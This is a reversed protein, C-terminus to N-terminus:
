GFDREMDDSEAQRYLLEYFQAFAKCIWDQKIESFEENDIVYLLCLLLTEDKFMKKYTDISKKITNESFFSVITSDVTAMSVVPLKNPKAAESLLSYIISAGLDYSESIEEQEYKYSILILKYLNPNDDKLNDTDYSNSKFLGEIEWEYIRKSMPLAM